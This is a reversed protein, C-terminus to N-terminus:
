PDVRGHGPHVREGVGTLGGGVHVGVDVLALDAHEAQGGPFTEAHAVRLEARRVEVGDVPEPSDSRPTDCSRTVNGLLTLAMAKPLSRSRSTTGRPVPKSM